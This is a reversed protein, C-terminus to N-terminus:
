HVDATKFLGPSATPLAARCLKQMPGAAFTFDAELRLVRGIAPDLPFDLTTSTTEHCDDIHHQRHDKRRAASFLIHTEISRLM